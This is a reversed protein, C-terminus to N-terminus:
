NLVTRLIVRSRWSVLPLWFVSGAERLRGILTSAAGAELALEM